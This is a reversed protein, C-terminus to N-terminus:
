VTLKTFVLVEVTVAEVPVTVPPPVPLVEPVMLPIAAPVATVVIVASLPQLVVTCLMLAGDAVAGVSVILL